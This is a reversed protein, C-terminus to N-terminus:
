GENGAEESRELLMAGGQGGGICLAAMGRKAKTRQLIQLLHLVIRAGSTGVPHGLAVAGGDLNLRQPDIPAFAERLGLEERAYDDSSWAAQCALVQSAFAENIEWYDIEQGTLGQRLLLPAMAHVPGLGMQEPAVGAWACDIIRGLVPLRYKKIAGSSALLLLAAGDSVQASNGATVLGFPPDFAPKLRALGDMSSDRRLGDDHDFVTGDPAYLPEIEALRGEDEARALRRHSECSFADMQQRSISFRKALIEATQGMSLNVFPDTLGRLLGSVLKFHMPRLRTLLRLKEKSSRAQGWASLLEVAEPPLLV